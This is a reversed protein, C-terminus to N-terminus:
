PIRSPSGAKRWCGCTSNFSLPQSTAVADHQTSAFTTGLMSPSQYSSGLREFAGRLNGTLTTASVLRAAAALSLVNDCYGFSFTDQTAPIQAKTFAARCIKGSANLPPRDAARLDATPWWGVAIAGQLQDVPANAPLAGLADYSSLGYTPKYGQSDAYRMFFGIAGPYAASMVRVIGESRFRLVASQISSITAGLEPTSEGYRVSYVVATVGRQKLKAVLLSTLRKAQPYDYALLGVKAQGKFFGRGAFSQVQLEALREASLTSTEVWSPAQVFDNKDRTYAAYSSFVANNKSLCRAVPSFDANAYAFAAVVKHDQTWLTCMEQMFQSYPDTRTLNLEFFVPRIRHGGLGGRANMWDVIAQAQAKGSGVDASIGLASAFEDVGTAYEFGVEVPALVRPPGGQTQGTTGGAGAGVVGSPGAPANGSGAAGSPAETGGPASGGGAAIGPGATPETVGPVLESGQQAATREAAPVTTGCAVASLLTLGALLARM